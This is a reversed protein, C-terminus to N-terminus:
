GFCLRNGFDGTASAAASHGGGKNGASADSGKPKGELTSNKLVLYFFSPAETRKKDIYLKELKSIFDKTGQAYQAEHTNAGISTGCRLFQSIM